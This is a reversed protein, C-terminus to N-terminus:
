APITLPLALIADYAEGTEVKERKEKNCKRHVCQCNEETHPGDMDLPLVHDIEPALPHNTGRLHRPAEVGCCQCIWGDRELVIYADVPEVRTVGNQKARLRM